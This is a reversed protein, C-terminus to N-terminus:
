VENALLAVELIAIFRTTLSIKMGFNDILTSKPAHFDRQPSVVVRRGLAAFAM